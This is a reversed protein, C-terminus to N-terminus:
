LGFAKAVAGGIDGVFKKGGELIQGAGNILGTAVNVVIGLGQGVVSDGSISKGTIARALVQIANNDGFCPGENIKRGICQNLEKKVLQGLMCTAASNPEGGTQALCALAIRTEANMSDGSLCLAGNLPDGSQSAEAACMFAQADKNTASAVGLMCKTLESSNGAGIKSYCDAAGAASKLNQDASDGFFCAFQASYGVKKLCEAKGEIGIQKLCDVENANGACAIAGKILPNGDITAKLSQEACSSFANGGKLCSAIPSAQDILEGSCQTSTLGSNKCHMFSLAIDKGNTSKINSLLNELFCVEGGNCDKDNIANVLTSMKLSSQDSFRPLVALNSLLRLDDKNLAPENFCDGGALCSTVQNHDLNDIGTCKRIASIDSRPTGRLNICEFIVIRKKVALKGMVSNTLVATSLQILEYTKRLNNESESISKEIDDIPNGPEVNASALQTFLLIAVVSIAAACNRFISASTSSQRM